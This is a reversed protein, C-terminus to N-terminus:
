PIPGFVIANNTEDLEAIKNNLDMVAIVYKGAATEGVPLKYGFSFRKSKGFLLEGTAFKKLFIDGADYTGDDSLFYQVSASLINKFGVNRVRLSGSLKCVTGSTTSQCSQSVLSVWEGTLDSSGSRGKVTVTVVSENADNSTLDYSSEFVGAAAPEFGVVVSCAQDPLLVQGNSCTGGVRSFPDAPTSLTGLILNSFGDNRVTVTRKALTGTPVNKFNVVLPTVTIEPKQNFRLIVGRTNSEDRGVAWGEAPSTFHLNWLRWQPSVIPPTVAFWSGNLFHILLGSEETSSPAQIGVAWGESAVPFYVSSLLWSVNPDSLSFPVPTWSNNFFHLFIGTTVLFSFDNGVAWGENPSTFNVGVLDWINAANPALFPNWGGNQWQLLVGKQQIQVGTGVAWGSQASTLYVDNLIWTPLVYPPSVKTWVGNQFRLLVGQNSVGISTDAGVAWGESASTFQVSILYWSSSVVPTPVSTWTGNQYHLLVGKHNISDRGVAWGEFPSTFNVDFLEWQLSVNPPNVSSWVGNLYHLIVGRQNVFDSGVAWAETKSVGYVGYLTWDLSVSPVDVNRWIAQAPSSVLLVAVAFLAMWAMQTKSYSRERM